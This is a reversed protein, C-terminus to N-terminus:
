DVEWRLRLCETHAYDTIQLIIIHRGNETVIIPNINDMISENGNEVKFLNSSKLKQDFPLCIKLRFNICYNVPIIDWYEKKGTFTDKLFASIILYKDEDEILNKYHSSSNSNNLYSVKLKNRENNLKYYCNLSNIDCIEGATEVVTIINENKRIRRFRMKQFYSAKTGKDTIDIITEQTDIITSSLKKKKLIWLSIWKYILPAFLPLTILVGGIILATINHQKFFNLFYDQELTFAIIGIGIAAMSFYSSIARVTDFFDKTTSSLKFFIM